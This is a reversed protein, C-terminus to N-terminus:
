LLACQPHERDFPLNSGILCWGCSPIGQIKLPKGNNVTQKSGLDMLEAKRGMKKREEEEEKRVGRGGKTLAGDGESGRKCRCTGMEDLLRVRQKWSCQEFFFFLEQTSEIERTEDRRTEHKM